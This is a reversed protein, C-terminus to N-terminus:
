EHLKEDNHLTPWIARTSPGNALYPSPPFYWSSKREARLCYPISQIPIYLYTTMSIVLVKIGKWFTSRWSEHSPNCDVHAAPQGSSIHWWWDVEGSWDKRKQCPQNSYKLGTGDSKLKIWTNTSICNSGPITCWLLQFFPLSCSHWINCGLDDVKRGAFM